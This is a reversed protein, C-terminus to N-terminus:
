PGGAAGVLGFGNHSVLHFEMLSPNELGQFAKVLGYGGAEFVGVTQFLFFVKFCEAPLLLKLLQELHEFRLPIFLILYSPKL